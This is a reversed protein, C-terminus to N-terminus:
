VALMEPKGLGATTVAESVREWDGVIATLLRSPRLHDTAVRTVQDIDVAEVSPVFTEFYDEPLDHLAMQLFGRAIQEATEFNRPYGRTLSARALEIEKESVPKSGRIASIEEVIDALAAATVSSEVAAQVMFPGPQRRFDFVSRAGYTFGREERLRMNLRSTFQGGLVTNLVLLAHFDPTQRTLGIHGLRLESQVAGPRDVVVLRRGAGDGGHAAPLPAAAGAEEVEDGVDRWEGFAEQVLDFLRDHGADGVAVITAHRPRHVRRHFAAPDGPEMAGLGEPSGLPLHGYPHTGYLALLFTRDAVSPPLDRLQILRSLRLDRVREFDAKEFRPRAIIDSMVGLGEVAFRSLVTLVIVTQDSGVETSLLAGIRGLSDQIAIADRDGAGEDLLDGTLAALGHRGPPDKSAGGPLLVAFVSVPLGTHEVTWVAAGNALRRRAARPFRFVPPPGPVPLRSRDIM